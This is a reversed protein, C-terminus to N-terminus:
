EQENKEAEQEAQWKEKRAAIARYNRSIEKLPDRRNRDNIRIEHRSDGPDIYRKTTRGNGMCGVPNLMQRIAIEDDTNYVEKPNAAVYERALEQMRGSGFSDILGEASYQDCREFTYGEPVSEPRNAM